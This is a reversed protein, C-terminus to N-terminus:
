HVYMARALLLEPIVPWPEKDEEALLQDDLEFQKLGGRTWCGPGFDMEIVGKVLRRLRGEDRALQDHARSVQLALDSKVSRRDHEVYLQSLAARQQEISASMLVARTALDVQVTLTDLRDEARFQRVRLAVRAPGREMAECADRWREADRQAERQRQSLNHLMAELGNKSRM